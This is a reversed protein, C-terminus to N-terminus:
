HNKLINQMASLEPISEVARHPKLPDRLWTRLHAMSIWHDINMELSLVTPQPPHCKAFIRTDSLPWWDWIKVNSSFLFFTSTNCACQSHADFANLLSSILKITLPYSGFLAPSTSKEIQRRPLKEHVHSGIPCFHCGRACGHEPSDRSTNYSLKPQSTLSIVSTGSPTSAASFVAIASLITPKCILTLVQITSVISDFLNDISPAMAHHHMLKPDDTIDWVNHNKSSKRCTMFYECSDKDALRIRTM